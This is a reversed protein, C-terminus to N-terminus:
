EEVKIYKKSVFGYKSPSTKNYMVYYWDKSEGYITVTDDKPIEYVIDSDTDPASRLNLETSDTTVKGTKQDAAEFFKMDSPSKSINPLGAYIDSDFNQDPNEYRIFNLSHWTRNNHSNMLKNFEESDIEDKFHYYKGNISSIEDDLYFYTGEFQYFLYATGESYRDSSTVVQIAKDETSIMIDRGYIGGDTFKDNDYIYVYYKTLVLGEARIFLEPISDGSVDRLSYEVNKVPAFDVCFSGLAETVADNLEDDSIGASTTTTVPASTTVTTTTQPETTTTKTTTEQITAEAETVYPISSYPASHDDHITNKTLMNLLALVFIIIAILVVFAAIGVCIIIIPLDKSKKKETDKPDGNNNPINNENM